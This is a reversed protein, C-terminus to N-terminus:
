YDSARDKNKNENRGIEKRMFNTDKACDSCVYWNPSLNNLMDTEDAFWMAWLRGCKKCQLHLKIGKITIKFKDAVDLNPRYM